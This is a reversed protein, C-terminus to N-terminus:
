YSRGLSAATDLSLSLAPVMQRADDSSHYLKAQRAIVWTFSLEEGATDEFESPTFVHIDLPCLVGFLLRQVARRRVAEDEVTRKIVFIDLDSNADATGIAYSGFSGVVLPAYGRVIRSAIRAIDAETLM